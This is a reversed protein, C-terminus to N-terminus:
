LLGAAREGNEQWYVETHIAIRNYIYNSYYLYYFQGHVYITFRYCEMRVSSQCIGNGRYSNIDFARSANSINEQQSADAGPM